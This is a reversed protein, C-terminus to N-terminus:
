GRYTRDGTAGHANRLLTAQLFISAARFAELPTPVVVSETDAPLDSPYEPQFTAVQANEFEGLQRRFAINHHPTDDIHVAVVEKGEPPFHRIVNAAAHGKTLPLDGTHNRPLLLGDIADPLYTKFFNITGNEYGPLTSTNAVVYVREKRWSRLIDGIESIGPVPEILANTMLVQLVSTIDEGSAIPTGSGYRHINGSYLEGHSEAVKRLGRHTERLVECVDVSAYARPPQEPVRLVGYVGPAEVTEGPMYEEWQRALESPAPVPYEDHLEMRQGPVWLGNMEYGWKM